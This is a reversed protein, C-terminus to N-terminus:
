TIYLVNTTCVRVCVPLPRVLLHPTHWAANVFEPARYIYICIYICIHDGPSQAPVSTCVCLFAVFAGRVPQWDVLCRRSCSQAGGEPVVCSDYIYTFKYKYKTGACMRVCVPSRGYLHSMRWAANVTDLERDACVRVCM